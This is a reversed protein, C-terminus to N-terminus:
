NIKFTIGTYVFMNNKRFKYNYKAFDVTFIKIVKFDNYINNTNKMNQKKIFLTKELEYPTSEIKEVINVLELFSKEFMTDYKLSAKENKVIIDKRKTGDATTLTNGVEDIDIAIEFGLPLVFFEDGIKIFDKPFHKELYEDLTM